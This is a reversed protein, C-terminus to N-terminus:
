EVEATSCSVEARHFERKLEQPSAPLSIETGTLTQKPSTFSIERRLTEGNSDTVTIECEQPPPTGTGNWSADFRVILADRSGRVVARSVDYRGSPDDYRRAECEVTADSPPGSVEVRSTVDDASQAQATMMDSRTGVVNGSADYVTWTCRRTGPFEAGSWAFDFSLLAHEEDPLGSVPDTAQNVRIDSFEYGPSDGQAAGGLTGLAAAAAIAAALSTITRRKTIM